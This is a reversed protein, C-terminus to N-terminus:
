IAVPVDIGTTWVTSSNSQAVPPGRWFASSLICAPIQGLINVVGAPEGTITGHPASSGVRWAHHGLPPYHVRPRKEVAEHIHQAHAALPAIYGLVQRRSTRQIPIELATVIVSCQGFDMVGEILVAALLPPRCALGVDEREEGFVAVDRASRPRGSRRSAARRGYVQRWVQYKDGARVDVSAHAVHGGPVGSVARPDKAEVSLTAVAETTSSSTPCRQRCRPL